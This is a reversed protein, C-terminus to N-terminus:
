LAGDWENPADAPPDDEASRVVAVVKRSGDQGIQVEVRGVPLGAALVAKALRTVEGQQFTLPGRAM